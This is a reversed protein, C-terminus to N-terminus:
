ILSVAGERGLVAVKKGRLAAEYEAVISLRGAGLVAAYRQLLAAVDRTLPSADTARMM